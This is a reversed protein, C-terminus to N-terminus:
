PPRTFTKPTKCKLDKFVVVMEELDAPPVSRIKEQSYRFTYGMDPAQEAYRRYREGIGLVGGQRVQNHCGKGINHQCGGTKPLIEPRVM